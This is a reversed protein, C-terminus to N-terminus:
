EESRSQRKTVGQGEEARPVEVGCALCEYLTLRAVPDFVPLRGIPAEMQRDGRRACHRPEHGGDTIQMAAISAKEKRGPRLEIPLRARVALVPRNEIGDLAAVALPRALEQLRVDARGTIGQHFAQALGCRLCIRGSRRGSVRM